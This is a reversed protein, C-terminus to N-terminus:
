PNYKTPKHELCKNQREVVCPHNSAWRSPLVCHNSALSSSLDMLVVLVYNHHGIQNTNAYLTALQLFVKPEIHKQWNTELFPVFFAWLVKARTNRSPVGNQLFLSLFIKACWLSTLFSESHHHNPYTYQMRTSNVTLSWTSLFNLDKSSFFSWLTQHYAM